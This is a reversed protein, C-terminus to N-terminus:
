RGEMWEKLAAAPYRRRNNVEIFKPGEGRDAWRKMTQVTVGIQAAAQETNLLKRLPHQDNNDSM